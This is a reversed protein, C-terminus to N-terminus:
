KASETAAPKLASIDLERVSNDRFYLSVMFCAVAAAICIIAARRSWAIRADPDSSEENPTMGLGRLSLFTKGDYVARVPPNHVWEAGGRLGIMQGFRCYIRVPFM